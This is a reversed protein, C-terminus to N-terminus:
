SKLWALFRGADKVEFLYYSPITWEPFALASGITSWLKNYGKQFDPSQLITMLKSECFMKVVADGSCEPMQSNHTASLEEEVMMGSVTDVAKYYNKEGNVETLLFAHGFFYPVAAIVAKKSNVLGEVEHTNVARAALGPIDGSGISDILLEIDIRGDTYDQLAKLKNYFKTLLKPNKTIGVESFIAGNLIATAVCGNQPQYLFYRDVKGGPKYAIKANSNGLRYNKAAFRHVGGGGSSITASHKRGLTTKMHLRQAPNATKFQSDLDQLVSNAIRTEIERGERRPIQKFVYNKDEQRGVWFQGSSMRLVRGANGLIIVAEPYGQAKVFARETKRQKPGSVTTLQLDEVSLSGADDDNGQAKFLQVFSPWKFSAKNRSTWQDWREQHLLYDGSSQEIPPQEQIGAGQALLALVHPDVKIFSPIKTDAM